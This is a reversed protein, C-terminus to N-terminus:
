NFRYELLWSRVFPCPLLGSGAGTEKQGGPSLLVVPWCSLRAWFFYRGATPLNQIQMWLTSARILPTTIYPNRNVAQASPSIIPTHSLPISPLQRNRRNHQSYHGDHHCADCELVPSQILPIDPRPEPASATGTFQFNISRIADTLGLEGDGDVDAADLCSLTEGGVFQYTLSKIVDALELKGNGDVDGRRFRTSPWCDGFEYAGIDVGAGCPRGNGVFCSANYAGNSFENTEEPTMSVDVVKNRATKEPDRTAM